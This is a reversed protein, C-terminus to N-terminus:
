LWPTIGGIRAVDAQIISCANQQLYEKFHELCYISEGVAIPLNTANSLRIHGNLDHAPLPEELWAIKFEEYYKVRRIAVDVNFCQNADVMIEFDDDVAERVAKLRECDENLLTKGVKIKCGQFGQLKVKTADEVLEEISLHLWGGETIYLPIKAQAGGLLKFLPLKCVRSKRDWLAIDIAAFSLSTIAGVSTSHTKFLLKKWIKEICDPDEGILEFVLHKKLLEIISSGGTGITYTYGIGYSGDDCIIKVLPTEQSIFSQISATRKVKPKLDIMFIEVEQIKTM